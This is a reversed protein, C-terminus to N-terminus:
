GEKAFIPISGSEIAEYLRFQEISHGKPCLTFVSDLMIERYRRPKIYTNRDSNPNADWHEAMYLFARNKPISKDNQLIERVKKRGIDTPAGMFSYLYQRLSPPKVAAPADLFEERSGLPIYRVNEGFFEVHRASYYQKFWPNIESPLMIRRESDSPVEGDPGHPGFYHKKNGFGWQASEDSAVVLTTNAPWAMLMWGPVCCGDFVIMKKGPFRSLLAAVHEKNANRVQHRLDFVDYDYATSMRSLRCTRFISALRPNAWIFVTIVPRATPSAITEIASNLAGKPPWAGLRFAAVSGDFDRCRSLSAAASETGWLTHNPTKSALRKGLLNACTCGRTTTVLAFLFGGEAACSNICASIAEDDSAPAQLKPRLGDPSTTFCGLPINEHEDGGAVETAGAHLGRCYNVRAHMRVESSKVALKWPESYEDHPDHEILQADAVSNDSHKPTSVTPLPTDNTLDTSSLTSDGLPKNLVSFSETPVSSYSRGLTTHVTTSRVDRREFATPDPIATERNDPALLGAACLWIGVTLIVRRPLLWRDGRDSNSVFFAM